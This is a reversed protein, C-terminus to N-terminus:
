LAQRKTFFEINRKLNERHMQSGSLISSQISDYAMSRKGEFRQNKCASDGPYFNVGKGKKPLQYINSTEPEFTSQLNNIHPESFKVHSNVTSHHEDQQILLSKSHDM